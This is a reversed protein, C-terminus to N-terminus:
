KTVYNLGLFGVLGFAGFAFIDGRGMQYRVHIRLDNHDSINGYASDSVTHKVVGAADQRGFSFSQIVTTGQKLQVRWDICSPEEEEDAEFDQIYREVELGQCIASAPTGSPNAIAVEFAFSDQSSCISFDFENLDSIVAEVIDDRIDVCGHILTCGNDAWKGDDSITSTPDLEEDISACGVGALIPFPFSM